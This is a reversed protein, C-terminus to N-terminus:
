ALFVFLAVMIVKRADGVVRRDGAEPEGPPCQSKSVAAQRRVGKSSGTMGPRSWRLCAAVRLKATWRM